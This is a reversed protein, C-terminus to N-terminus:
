TPNMRVRRATHSSTWKTLGGDDSATLRLTYPGNSLLKTDIRGLVENEVPSEGAGIPRWESAIELM